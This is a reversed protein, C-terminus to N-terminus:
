ILVCALIPGTKSRTGSPQPRVSCGWRSGRREGEGQRAPRTDEAGRALSNPHDDVTQRPRRAAAQERGIPHVPSHVQKSDAHKILELILDNRDHAYEAMLSAAVYGRQNDHQSIFVNKLPGLLKDHIPRLLTSWHAVAFLDEGTLASVIDAAVATWGRSAPEYSALTCAARLRRDSPEHVAELTQWLQRKVDASGPALAEGIIQVNPPDSELLQDILEHEQSRDVPLLALSARLLDQSGIKARAKAERLRLNAWRRYPAMQPIIESVKATDAVFLGEVLSRARVYTYGEM